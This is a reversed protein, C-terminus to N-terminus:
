RANRHLDSQSLYRANEEKRPLDAGNRLWWTSPKRRNPSFTETCLFLRLENDNISRQKAYLRKVFSTRPRTNATYLACRSADALPDRSVKRNRKKNLDYCGNTLIQHYNQSMRKDCTRRMTNWATGGSRGGCECECERERGGRSRATRHKILKEM